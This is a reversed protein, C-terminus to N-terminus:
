VDGFQGKMHDAIYGIEETSIGFYEELWSHILGDVDASEWSSIFEKWLIERDEPAAEKALLLMDRYAPGYSHVFYQVRISTFWRKSRGGLQAAKEVPSVGLDLKDEEM